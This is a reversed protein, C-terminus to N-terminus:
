LYMYNHLYFPVPHLFSITEPKREAEVIQLAHCSHSCARYLLEARKLPSEVLQRRSSLRLSAILAIVM